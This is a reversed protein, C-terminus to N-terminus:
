VCPIPRAGAGRAVYSKLPLATRNAARYFIEEKILRRPHQLLHTVTKVPLMPEGHPSKESAAPTFEWVMWLRRNLVNKAVSTEVDRGCKFVGKGGCERGYCLTAGVRLSRSWALGYCARWRLLLM